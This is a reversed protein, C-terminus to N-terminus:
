RPNMALRVPLPMDRGFETRANGPHAAVSITPVGAAALRRHLEYAFM